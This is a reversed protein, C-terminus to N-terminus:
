SKFFYINKSYSLSVKNDCGTNPCQLIESVNFDHARRYFLKQKYKTGCGCDIVALPGGFNLPNHSTRIKVNTNDPIGHSNISIGEFHREITGTM